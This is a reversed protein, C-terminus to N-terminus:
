TLYFKEPLNLFCIELLHRPNVPSELLEKKLNLLEDVILKLENTKTASPLNNELFILYADILKIIEERKSYVKDNKEIFDLRQAYTSNLLSELQNSTETPEAAEIETRIRKILCRSVITPLLLKEHSTTLIIFSHAPPEELTKLLANQAEITLLPAELILVVKAPSQFPKNKLFEKIERSTEISISSKEQTEVIKLDPSKLFSEGKSKLFQAALILAEQKRHVQTGSVLLFSHM